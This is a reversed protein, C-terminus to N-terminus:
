GLAPRERDKRTPIGETRERKSGDIIPKRIYLGGGRSRERRGGQGGAPVTISSDRRTKIEQSGTQQPARTRDPGGTACCVSSSSPTTIIINIIIIDHHHVHHSSTAEGEREERTM